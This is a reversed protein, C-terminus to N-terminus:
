VGARAEHTAAGRGAGRRDIRRLLALTGLEIPLFLTAVVLCVVTSVAAIGYATVVSLSESATAGLILQATLSAIIPFQVLYLPFSIQGMFQSVPSNLFRQAPQSYRVSLFVGIGLYALLHLNKGNTLVLGAAAMCIVLAATAARSSAPGSRLVLGDREALAIMAGAFFCGAIPFIAGVLVTCFLLPMYRDRLFRDHQSIAFVILAGWLEITMTWLFPNYNNEWLFGYAGFLAFFWATFVDAEFNIFFGFWKGVGMLDHTARTPTQGLAILAWALFTAGIIPLTLRIYRRVFALILPPNAPNHWRRVTLVYGSITLFVGVAFTGNVFIATPFNVVEPFKHRFSESLCHSVVVSLAAWGRLGDFAHIRSSDQVDQVGGLTVRIQAGRPSRTL